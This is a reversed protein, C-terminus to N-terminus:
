QTEGPPPPTVAAGPRDEVIGGPTKQAELIADRNEQYFKPDGIQSTTFQGPKGTPQGTNTPSGVSTTKNTLHPRDKILADVAETIGSFAGDEGAKIDTTSILKLSDALNVGTVGKTALQNTIANNRAMDSNSSKLDDIEKQKAESLEKFKGQEELRKKKAEADAEDRKNLEKQAARLEKLRETKWIRPDELVKSM